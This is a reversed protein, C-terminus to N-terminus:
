DVMDCLDITREEIIALKVKRRVRMYTQQNSPQDTLKDYRGLFAPSHDYIGHLSVELNRASSENLM